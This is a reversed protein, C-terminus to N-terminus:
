IENVKFDGTIGIAFDDNDNGRITPVITGGVKVTGVTQAVIGFADTGGVTGLAQGGITLSVIRSNIAANGGAIAADDGDGFKGNSAITGAVLSSAIWDSGVRVPGMQADANVGVGTVNFGAQIQAFEVRGKVTLKGIAVDTATQVAQGRASIIAPNTVNGIINGITATGIDDTVRIAGNNAFTSANSDVGSILSGGITLSRIRQAQIYGSDQLANNGTPSGGIVSGAIKVTGVGGTSLILGSPSGTGGKLDGGVTVGVLSGASISGTFADDGGVVDGQIKITGSAGTASIFGGKQETGGRLDGGIFVSAFGSNTIIQGSRFGGGTLNGNIKIAGMALGAFIRGSDPGTGGLLDGGITVSALTGNSFIEGTEAGASGNVNGGIEIAGMADESYIRGTKSGGGRLDGGIKVSALTSTSFIEGANLGSGGIVDGNIRVAGMTGGSFIRGRTFTTEGTLDGNITVSALSGKTVIEGSVNGVIKIAGMAASAFVLGSQFGFASQLDGGITVSALKGGTATISASNQGNAGSVNGKIVVVGIDSSAAIRGSNTAQGGLLSGGIAIKGIDGNDGGLVDVFAERVDSRITLAGLKGQIITHLDVAGTSTGFRGLSQATLALVGPTSTTGDGAQIRGVDGDIAIFGVDLGSAIVQGLAAFGDGGTTSNRVATLTISTGTAIAGLSTLDITRLQQPGVTGFASDLTFITAVNGATLLPKSLTVVVSDGDWDRYKMSTPNVFAAPMERCELLEISRRIRHFQNVLTM